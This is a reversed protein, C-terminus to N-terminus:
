VACSFGRCKGLHLCAIGKCSNGILADPWMAELALPFWMKIGKKDDQKKRILETLCNRQSTSPSLWLHGQGRDCCHSLQSLVAMKM